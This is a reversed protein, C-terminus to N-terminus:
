VSTHRRLGEDRDDLCRFENPADVLQHVVVLSCCEDQIQRSVRHCTIQNQSRATKAFQPPTEFAAPLASARPDNVEEVARSHRQKEQRREGLVLAGLRRWRKEILADPVQPLIARNRDVDDVPVAQADVGAARQVIRQGAVANGVVELDVRCACSRRRRRKWSCTIDNKLRASDNSGTL